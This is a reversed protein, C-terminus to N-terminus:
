HSSESRLYTFVAIQCLVRGDNTIHDHATLATNPEVCNHTTIHVPNMDTVTHVYLVAADEM